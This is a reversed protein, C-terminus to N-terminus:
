DKPSERGGWMVPSNMGPFCIPIYNAQYLVINFQSPAIGNTTMALDAWPTSNEM